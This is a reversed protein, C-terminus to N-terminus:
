SRYANTSRAGIIWLQRPISSDRLFPENRRIRDLVADRRDRHIPAIEHMTGSELSSGQHLCGGSKANRLKEKVSGM